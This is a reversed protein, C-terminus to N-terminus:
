PHYNFWCQSFERALSQRRRLMEIWERKRNRVIQYVKDFLYANLEIFYAEVGMGERGTVRCPLLVIMLLCRLRWTYLYVTSHNFHAHQSAKSGCSFDTPQFDRM